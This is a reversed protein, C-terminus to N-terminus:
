VILMADGFSYFRYREQIAHSYALKVLNEGAFASIMLLLTTRPLHFNTVMSDVMRFRYPPTIYIDTTGRQPEGPPSDAVTELTRVVTTGVGVVRSGRERAGAIIGATEASVEFWESHITHHRADEVKVPQFTDLGVHLTIYAIQIGAERCRDLLQPTFHLGATPAAASGEHAAYVTQYRAPDELKEGIYPPLPMQGFQQLLSRVDDGQILLPGDPERDRVTVTVGAVNGETTMVELVEGARLRRAPRALVRWLNPEVPDLFLLETRGGTQRRAFVRAPIVRTDNLVLVDGARLFEPLDRFVRDQLRNSRRDVVLLRSSDRPEVPHQAILDTPLDYDFRSIPLGDGSIAM